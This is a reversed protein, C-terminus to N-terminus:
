RRRPRHPLRVPGGRRHPQRRHPHRGTRPGRRRAHHHRPRRRPPASGRPPRPPRRPRGPSRHPPLNPPRRRKGEEQAVKATDAAAEEGAEEAEEDEESEAAEAAEVSDAFARARELDYRFYANGLAWVVRGGDASWSPFEGGIDTVRAVPVSAGSPNRVSVALAEAGVRPVTVVYLDNGVRALAQDGVPAMRISSAPAPPGGRNPSFGTVRLHQKEDTGDWRVSVLGSGFLHLYIRGPSM